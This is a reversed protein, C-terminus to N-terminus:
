GRSGLRGRYRRRGALLYGQLTDCKMLRLLHAQEESDVGEAVVSLDFSHALSVITSVLTMSDADSAMTVIFSRDIKLTDVPLKALYRLSSYGTGFDDIAISVGAAAIQELRQTHAEIDSMIVSETIELELSSGPVGHHGLAALIMDPFDAYRLQIPSVNVAVPLARMNMDVWRRHDALAQEVVWRGVDIILETDELVGIFRDPTVIAGKRPQWRLLAELGVLEGSRAAIKPQYYLIFESRELASLLQQELALDEAVRSNLRPSYFLYRAGSQQAEKLAAEANNYLTEPDPADSPYVAVGVRATIRLEEGDNAFPRNFVALLKDQLLTGADTEQKLNAATVAFSDAGVRAVRGDPFAAALRAAASALLRDGIHRGLSDNLHGFRDIDVLFLAVTGRTQSLAQSLRERFLRANPLSTLPDYHALFSLQEEKAIFQLAFSIDGALENLLALEQADFHDTEEAYLLMVGAIEGEVVLPLSVLSDYGREIAVRAAPADTDALAHALDRVVIATQSRITRSAPGSESGLGSALYDALAACTDDDVGRCSCLRLAEEDRVYLAIWAIPFDGEEVAIRCAEEFLAQRDHIRVIASNIGSLVRYIRSLRRISRDQRKTDTIDEALGAVRYLTGQANRIPFGRARIWRVSGDPRLIRYQVNFAGTTQTERMSYDAIHRDDPHILERWSHPAAYLSEASRQWVETYAPSVYLMEGSAADILFFAERINEALQRFRLESDRLRDLAAKREDTELELVAAHRRVRDLLVRKEYEAAVQAALASAIQEDGPPFDAMGIRDGACFWGHARSASNVPAILACQTNPRRLAAAAAPGHLRQPRSTRMVEGFVGETPELNTRLADLEEQSLGWCAFDRLMGSEDLLCVMAFGSGMVDRAAHVFTELMEAPQEYATLNISLELLAALRMSLSQARVFAEDREHAGNKTGNAARTLSQGLVTRLGVMTTALGDLGDPDGGRPTRIAPEAAFSVEPLGLEAQVADIVVQPEAPKPIVTRVGCSNGLERAEALRYTATYFIVPLRKDRSFQAIRRALEIGDIRPMLIDTIVLDLRTREIVGLAAAGDGAQEVRHGAYSLLTALYDRNIPLDDVVLIVAM